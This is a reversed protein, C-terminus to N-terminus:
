RKKNRFIDLLVAGILIVGKLVDQIFSNINLMTMGNFFVTLFIAGFFAQWIKGKGGSMSVGGIVCSIMTDFEYLNGNTIAASNLRSLLVIGGFSAMFGALTFIVTSHLKVNIGAFYAAEQNGGVAYTNRGFRTKKLVFAFLIFLILMILINIPLGNEGGINGRGIFAIEEPMSPIPAANTILKAVGKCIMQTGLTVVFPPVKLYSTLVGNTLGIVTGLVLAAGIAIWPNWGSMKMLYAALCSSLCLNQGLSMDFAGCILVMAQGIAVIALASTQQFINRINMVTLFYPSAISFVLALIVIAIVLMYEKTFRQIITKFSNPDQQVKGEM